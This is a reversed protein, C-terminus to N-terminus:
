LMSRLYGFADLPMRNGNLKEKSEQAQLALAGAERTKFAANSHGGAVLPKSDLFSNGEQRGKHQVQSERPEAPRNTTYTEVHVRGRRAPVTRDPKIQQRWTQM